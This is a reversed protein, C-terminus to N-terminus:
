PASMGETPRAPDARPAPRRPGTRQAEHWWAAATAVALGLALGGLVDSPWHARLVIRALGVGIVLALAAATVLRRACPRLRSRGVLYIVIAAFAATATVHGSPFGSAASEPRARGVLEKLAGEGAAGLPLVLAWLWWFRRGEASAAFVLLMAPLLFKWGGAHNLWGAMAEVPATAHRLIADRLLSDFPLVGSASVCASLLALVGIASFCTIRWPTSGDRV